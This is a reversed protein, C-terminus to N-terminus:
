PRQRRTWPKGEEEIDMKVKYSYYAKVVVGVLGFGAFVIVLLPGSGLLSDLWWGFLGFFLPVLVIEFALTLGDNSGTWLAQRERLTREDRKSAM